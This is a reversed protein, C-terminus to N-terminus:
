SRCSQYPVALSREAQYPLAFLCETQYPLAFSHTIWDTNGKFAITFMIM